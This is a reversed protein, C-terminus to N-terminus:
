SCRVGASLWSTRTARSWTSWSTPMRTRTSRSSRTGAPATCGPRPCSGTPRNTSRPWPWCAPSPSPRGPSAPGARTPSDGVRLSPSASVWTPRPHFRVPWGASRPPLPPSPAAPRAVTPGGAPPSPSWWPWPSSPSRASSCCRGTSSCASRQTPGAPWGAPFLPSLAVALGVAGAVGVVLAPALRLVSGAVHDRRTFGLTQRVFRDDALQAAHRSMAQYLITLGAAAAALAFAWLATVEVSVSEDIRGAFDELQASVAFNEGAAEQVAAAVEDIRGPETRISAAGPATLVEGSYREVFAQTTILFPEPADSIEEIDRIVGVVRVDVVPGEPEGGELGAFMRFQGPGLTHLTITEGVGAEWAEVAAEAVMVEHPDAPDAWRGDVVLMSPARGRQAGFGGNFFEGDPGAAAAIWNIVTVGDVGDVAALRDALEPATPLEDLKSEAEALNEPFSLEAELQPQNTAAMFRDMATDARRAGAAVALTVGGAVAILLGLALLAGWERRWESRVWMWVASM